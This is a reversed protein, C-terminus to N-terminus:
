DDFTVGLDRMWAAVGSTELLDSVQSSARLFRVEQGDDVADRVLRVLISLGILDM